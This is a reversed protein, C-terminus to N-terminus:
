AAAKDKETAKADDNKETEGKKGEGNLMARVRELATEFQRDKFESEPPANETLVDRARRYEDYDELEKRTFKVEEDPHVGWEDTVKSDPFRHINKGSPRLYGATTLKLASAGSELEIVNQVSGKGWSREGVVVARKHDQLCASLIESASASFRNILIAMPFDPLTGAKTAEFTRKETNKGETSVITGSEVFMDSIEVAQSLLGGPNFRLDLILGKMGQKQLTDIAAALEEASKRGFQTLRVYGIKQEDDVLFDWAGDKGWKDGLVSKVSIIARKMVIEEDETASLHRVKISVTEGPPGKMLEVARSLPMNETDYGEVETVIDGARVGAKYAPTDPLPSIVLIRSTRPDPQVQIGIGGFQQDVQQNFRALEEPPIYSSYPDLEKIMGRLAAELLKRRDVDKVYNRDVQEFTDVFTQMLEFYEDQKPAPAAKNEDQADVPSVMLVLVLAWLTRVRWRMDFAM